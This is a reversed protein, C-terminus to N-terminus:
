AVQDFLLGSAATQQLAREMYGLSARIIGLQTLVLGARAPDVKRLAVVESDKIGESCASALREVMREFKSLTAAEEDTPAPPLEFLAVQHEAQLLGDAAARLKNYTECRGSSIMQFLAGQAAPGLRSLETAQSPTLHGGELLAQYEPRLRLLQLRDSIRHPQKVGLRQALSQPTYGRDIMAQFARAEELPTIDQRQLNEVIAGIAVADDNMEAVTAEIEALGALKHARWRREGAVIMYQADPGLRDGGFVVHPDPAFLRVTIPQLLGNAKISDALEALAAPAFRKRPQDPNPRIRDVAIRM